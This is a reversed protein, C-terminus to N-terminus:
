MHSWLDIVKASWSDWVVRLTQWLGSRRAFVALDKKKVGTFSRQRRSTM